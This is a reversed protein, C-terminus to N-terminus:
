EIFSCPLHNEKAYTHAYSGEKVHLVISHEIGSFVYEAMFVVSEPITMTALSACNSFAGVCIREVGSPLTVSTLGACDSFAYDGITLVGSPLTVATLGRCLMFAERDIGIVAYGDIETPIVLDGEPKTDFYGTLTARDGEIRYMFPFPKDADPSLAEGTTFFTDDIIKYPLRRYRAFQEAYSGERVFLTANGERGFAYDDISTVSNPIIVELDGCEAFASVSIEIVGEPIIVRTLNECALFLHSGIITVPHGDLESPIWVEGIMEGRDAVPRSLRIGSDELTYYYRGSSDQKRSSMEGTASIFPITLAAMLLCICIMSQPLPNKIKHM